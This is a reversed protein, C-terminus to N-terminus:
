RNGHRHDTAQNALHHHHAQLNATEGEITTATEIPAIQHDEERVERHHDIEEITMAASEAHHHSHDIETQLITLM